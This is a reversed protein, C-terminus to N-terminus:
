LKKYRSRLTERYSSISQSAERDRDDRRLPQVHVRVYRLADVMQPFESLWTEATQLEQFYRYERDLREKDEKNLCARAIHGIGRRFKQLVFRIFRFAANPPFPELANHVQSYVHKDCYKCRWESRAFNAEDGHITRFLKYDHEECMLTKFVYKIFKIM